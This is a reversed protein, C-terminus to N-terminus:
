LIEKTELFVAGTIADAEGRHEVGSPVMLVDGSGLVHPEGGVWYTLSGELMYFLQEESHAHLKLQAGPAMEIRAFVFSRTRIEHFAIGEGGNIGPGRWDPLVAASV